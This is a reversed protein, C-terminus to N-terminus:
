LREGSFRKRSSLDTFDLSYIFPFEVFFFFNCLTFEEEEEEEETEKSNM